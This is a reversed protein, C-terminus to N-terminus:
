SGCPSVEPVFSTGFVVGGEARLTRKPLARYLDETLEYLGSFPEFPSGEYFRDGTVIQHYETEPRDKLLHSVIPLLLPMPYTLTIRGVSDNIKCVSISLHRYPYEVRNMGSFLARLLDSRNLFSLPSLLSSLLTGGLPASSLVNKLLGIFPPTLPALVIAASRRASELSGTTTFTRGAMHLAMEMRIKGYGILITQILGLSLLIFLPVILVAELFVIGRNRDKDFFSNKSLLMSITYM